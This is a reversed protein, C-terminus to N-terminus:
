STSVRPIGPFLDLMDKTSAKTVANFMKRMTTPPHVAPHQPLQLAHDRTKGIVIEVPMDEPSTNMSSDSPTRPSYFSSDSDSDNSSVNSSPSLEPVKTPSPVMCVDMPVAPAERRRTHRRPTSVPAPPVPSSTRPSHVLHTIVEALGQHHSLLDDETIKLEFNLVDLYEREIRGVDRKGFVGTCLAWHV